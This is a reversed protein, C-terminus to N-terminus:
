SKKSFVPLNDVPGNEDLKKRIRQVVITDLYNGEFGNMIKTGMEDLNQETSSNRHPYDVGFM